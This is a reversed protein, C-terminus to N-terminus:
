ISDVDAYRENYLRLVQLWASLAERCDWRIVSTKPLQRIRLFSGTTKSYVIWTDAVYTVITYRSTVDYMFIMGVISPLSITKM